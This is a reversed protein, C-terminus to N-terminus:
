RRALWYLGMISTTAIVASSFFFTMIVIVVGWFFGVVDEAWYGYHDVTYSRVADISFEYALPTVFFTIVVALVPSLNRIAATMLANQNNGQQQLM